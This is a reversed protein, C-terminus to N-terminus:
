ALAQRFDAVLDNRDEIGVSVRILSEAIGMARRREPGMEYFITQAVPIALTRNDGLNSSLVVIRLRNLFAMPDVGDVLEFSLLGGGARLAVHVRGNRDETARGPQAGVEVQFEVVPSQTTLDVVIVRDRDPDSVIATKGDRLVLLTGGSLPAPTVASLVTQQGCGEFCGDDNPVGDGDFDDSFSSTSGSSSSDDDYTVPFGNCAAVAGVATIPLALLLWSSRKSGILRNM